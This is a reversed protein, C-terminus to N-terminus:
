AFIDEYLAQPEPWPSNKAYEIAENIIKRNANKIAEVEYDPIIEEKILYSQFRLLPDHNEDTWIELEGSKRYLGPDKETHNAARYTNAVIFSPGGGRRAKEIAQSSVDYMALVDNGDVEIGKFGYPETRKTLDQDPFYRESYSMEVFQNRVCVYVIPLKWLAAMNVVEYFIGYNIAGDGILSVVVHENKKQKCAFAVGTAYSTPTALISCMGLIGAEPDDLHYSGGKGKCCGNARGMIEAMLSKIDGGKALFMGHDRVANQIWDGRKLAANLGVAVGEEGTCLIQTNKIYKGEKYLKSISKEFERILVMKKYMDIYKDDQNEM